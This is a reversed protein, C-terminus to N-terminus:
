WAEKWRRDHMLAIRGIEFMAPAQSPIRLWVHHGNVDGEIAVHAGLDDNKGLSHTQWHFSTVSTFLQALGALDLHFRSPRQEGDRPGGVVETKAAFLTVEWIDGSQFFHCGLPALIEVPLFHTTVQDAFETLWTPPNTM